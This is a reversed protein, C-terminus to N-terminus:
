KDECHRDLESVLEAASQYRAGPKKAHLKNILDALWAPADPRLSRLPPPQSTRIQLALDTVDDGKFPTRGTSLKYLMSGLSFLDARADVDTTSFQEPSMYQPTGVWVGDPTSRADAVVRALGFDTIKVREIGSELLINGPKVDRHVLGEAHVAALGRGAAVFLALIERWARARGRLHADLTVGDVLEMAVFVQGDHSGLEYVAVVNPHSLRALAQAERVLWARDGGSAGGSAGAQTQLLKIAVKRDLEPDFASYVVGMGGEGLVDLVVYRGVLTGRSMYDAKVAASVEESAFTRESVPGERRTQDDDTL